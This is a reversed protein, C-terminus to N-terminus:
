RGYKEGGIIGEVIREVYVFTIAKIAYNDDLRTFQKPIVGVSRPVSNSRVYTDGIILERLICNEIM